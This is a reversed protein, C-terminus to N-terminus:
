GANFSACIVDGANIGDAALGVLRVTIDDPRAWEYEVSFWKSTSPPVLVAERETVAAVVCSDYTDYTNNV